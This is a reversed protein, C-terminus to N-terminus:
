KVSLSGTQIFILSVTYVFGLYLEAVWSDSFWCLKGHRAIAMTSTPHYKRHRIWPARPHEPHQLVGRLRFFAILVWIDLSIDVAITLFWLKSVFVSHWANYDSTLEDIAVIGQIGDAAFTLNKITCVEFPSSQKFNTPTTSLFPRPRLIKRARVTWCGGVYIGPYAVSKRRCDRSNGTSSQAKSLPQYM